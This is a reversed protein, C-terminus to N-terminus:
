CATLARHAETMMNTIIQAATTVDHILGVGAGAPYAMEEWRGSTTETTPPIASFTPMDYPLRASHPFLTTHGIVGERLTNPIGDERGAWEVVTRTPLLRYREGPWEPGFAITVVTPGVAEVLRRKYQRHANSEVSAVLRTGVWVGDAGARLAAAVGAGDTIGGAALLLQDPFGHRIRALLEALPVVGRAHGGAEVGQAILGEVGAEVAAAALEMSSVQMWVRTGGGNLRRVWDTPPVDHHFVVLPVRLEVCADVHGDTCAPGLGTDACILNVGWPRDTFDRLEAIMVPLSASPDPTAGIVGLGGANSVAAALLPHAVFSMGAGVFPHVLGYEKTLRTGITTDDCSYHV